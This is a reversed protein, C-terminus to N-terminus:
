SVIRYAALCHHRRAPLTVKSLTSREKPTLNMNRASFSRPKREWTDAKSATKWLQSGVAKRVRRSEPPGVVVPPSCDFHTGFPREPLDLCHPPSSNKWKRFGTQSFPSRLPVLSVEQLCRSPFRHLTRLAHTCIGWHLHRPGLFPALNLNQARICQLRRRPIIVSERIRRLM